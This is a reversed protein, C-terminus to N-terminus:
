AQALIEAAVAAKEESLQAGWRPPNLTRKFVLPATRVTAVTNPSIANYSRGTATSVWARHNSILTALVRDTYGDAHLRLVQERMRHLDPAVVQLDPMANPDRLASVARSAPDADEGPMGTGGMSEGHRAAGSTLRHLDLRLLHLTHVITHLLEHTTAADSPLVQRLAHLTEDDHDYVLKEM